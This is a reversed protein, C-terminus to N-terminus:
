ARTIANRPGEKPEPEAVDQTPQEDSVQFEFTISAPEAEPGTADDRHDRDKPRSASLFM